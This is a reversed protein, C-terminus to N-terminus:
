LNGVYQIYMNYEAVWRTSDTFDIRYNKYDDKTLPYTIINDTIESWIVGFDVVVGGPCAQDSVRSNDLTGKCASPINYCTNTYDGIQGWVTGQAEGMSFGGGESNGDKWKLYLPGFEYVHLPQSATYEKGDAATLTASIEVKGRSQSTNVLPTAEAKYTDGVYRITALIADADPQTTQSAVNWEISQYSPDATAPLIRVGYSNYSDQGDYYKSDILKDPTYNYLFRGKYTQSICYIEIGTIESYNVDVTCTATISYTDTIKATATITTSGVKVCNVLTSLGDVSPTLELISEDDVSWTVKNNTSPLLELVSLTFSETIYQQKSSYSLTFKTELVTITCERDIGNATATVKTTGPKVATVIGKDDVTAITSNDVKFSPLQVIPIGEWTLQSTEGAYITIESQDLTFTKATVTVKCTASKTDDDKSTVKIEAEGAAVATVNGKEDVTAIKSDSSSWIVDKVSADSPLVEFTLAGSEGVYIDLTTPDVTVGTVYVKSDVEINCTATINTGDNSTAKIVATGDAVATVVGSSSVTAISEDSSSWTLTKDNATLPLVAADIQKTAGLEEFKYSTPDLTVSTVLDVLASNDVSWSNESASGDGKFYVTCSYNTNRVINCDAHTTGIYFRYIITGRKENSSYEYELEIYSSNAKAEASMELEKDKNTLSNSAVTGQMNEFLYFPLSSGATVGSGNASSFAGLHSQEYLEGDLVNGDIAKNDSFLTISNPANFLGARKITIAVGSNLETYNFALSLKSICRSLSIAVNSGNNLTVQSSKGSMLVAGVGDVLENISSIAISLAEVQEINTCPLSKGANAIAYVTYNEGTYIVLDEVTTVGEAYKYSVLAGLENFIYINLNSIASEDINLPAKTAVETQEAMSFTFGVSITDKAKSTFNYPSYDEKSSCNYLVGLLIFTLIYILKKM